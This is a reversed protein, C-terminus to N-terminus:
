RSLKLLVSIVSIPVWLRLRWRATILNPWVTLHERCVPSLQEPAHLGGDPALGRLIAQICSVPEGGRTSRYGIGKGM